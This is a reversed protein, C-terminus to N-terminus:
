KHQASQRPSSGQLSRNRRRSTSSLNRHGSIPEYQRRLSRRRDRVDLSGFRVVAVVSLDNENRHPQGNGGFAIIDINVPNPSAADLTIREGQVATRRQDGIATLYRGYTKTTYTGGRDIAQGRLPYDRLVDATCGIHDDHYHSAIHYDIGIVGLQSLYSLPRSCNNRVGNDFLVTEGGPSILIAGDGQGVNMFHIQLRGNAQALVFDSGSLIIAAAGLIAALSGLFRRQM